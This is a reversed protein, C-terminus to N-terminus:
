KYYRMLLLSKKRKEPFSQESPVQVWKLKREYIFRYKVKGNWYFRVDLFKSQEDFFYNELFFLIFYSHKKVFNPNLLDSKLVFCDEYASFYKNEQWKFFVLHGLAPYRGRYTINIYPEAYHDNKKLNEGCFYIDKFSKKPIKLYFFCRKKGKKKCFFLLFIRKNECAQIEIFICLM